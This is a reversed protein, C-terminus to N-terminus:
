GNVIFARIGIKKIKPTKKMINMMMKETNEGECYVEIRRKTNCLYWHVFRIAKRLDRTVDTGKEGISEYRDDFVTLEGCRIFVSVTGFNM